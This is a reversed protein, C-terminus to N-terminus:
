SEAGKSRAKRAPIVKWLMMGVMVCGGLAAALFGLGSRKYM